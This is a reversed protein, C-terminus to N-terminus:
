WAPCEGPYDPPAGKGGGACTRRSRHRAFFGAARGVRLFMRRCRDGVPHDPLQLRIGQVNRDAAWHSPFVVTAAREGFLTRNRKSALRMVPDEAVRVIQSENPLVLGLSWEANRRLLVSADRETEAAATTETLHREVASLRADLLRTDNATLSIQHRMWVTGLGISGSFCFMVLTYALLQNIFGHSSSTKM